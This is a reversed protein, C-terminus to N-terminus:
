RRESSVTQRGAGMISACKGIQQVNEKHLKYNQTSHHNSAKDQHITEKEASKNKRSKTACDQLFLFFSSMNDYKM